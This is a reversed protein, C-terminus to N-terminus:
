YNVTLLFSSTAACARHFTGPFLRYHRERFIGNKYFILNESTPSTM